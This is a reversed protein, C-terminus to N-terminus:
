MIAATFICLPPEPGKSASILRWRMATCVRLSAVRCKLASHICQTFLACRPAFPAAAGTRDGSIPLSGTDLHWLACPVSPCAPRASTDSSVSCLFRCLRCLFRWSTYMVLSTVPRLTFDQVRGTLFYYIHSFRTTGIAICTSTSDVLVEEQLWKGLSARTDPGHDPRTSATTAMTTAAGVLAARQVTTRAVGTM